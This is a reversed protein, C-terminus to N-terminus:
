TRRSPLQGDLATLGTVRVQGTMLLHLMSSFLSKLTERQVSAAQLRDDLRRLSQAIKRQEDILPHPTPWPKLFEININKQTGKPALRNMEAKQTRLYYELFVPDMTEDPTIGVLSDPFASDFELIGTDAINAAITLVITGKPFLRSIALGDENLTQTYTRIRGNCRAVDGTQIFPIAGGYFRPDNRPRHAFKGREISAVEGLRVVEWSAPIEGIETQKLPEGRLGERFLKAMTAAKLEKLTAVIKEQVEVATQIKALVAAMARQEVVSPLAIEFDRLTDKNVSKFIAGSGLGDLDPKHHLLLYFLFEGHTRPGPRLAAIGRGICCREVAINADGVPARVSVLIDGPEAVRTPASCWTKPMPYRVGFDAKGQFFPLGERSPNYTASDPSQGMIISSVNPDGLRYTVWDNM